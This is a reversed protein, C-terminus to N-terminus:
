LSRCRDLAFPGGILGADSGAHSSPSHNEDVPLFLPSFSPQAPFSIESDWPFFHRLVFLEEASLAPFCAPVLVLLALICFLL